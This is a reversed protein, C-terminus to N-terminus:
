AASRIPHTCSHPCGSSDRTGRRSLQHSARSHMNIRSEMVQGSCVRCIGVRRVVAKRHGGVHLKIRQAGGGNICIDGRPLRKVLGAAVTLVAAGKPISCLMAYATPAAQFSTASCPAGVAISAQRSAAWEAVLWLQM